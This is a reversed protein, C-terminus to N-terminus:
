KVGGKTVLAVVECEPIRVMKKGVVFGTLRGERVMARVTDDTVRLASATEQVTLLKPVNLNDM